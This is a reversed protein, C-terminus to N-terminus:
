TRVRDVGCQCTQERPYLPVLRRSLPGPAQIDAAPPLASTGTVHGPLGNKALFLCKTAEGYRM